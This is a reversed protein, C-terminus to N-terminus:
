EFRDEAEADPELAPDGEGSHMYERYAKNRLVMVNNGYIDTALFSEMKEVYGDNEDSEIYMDNYGDIVNPNEQMAPTNSTGWSEVIQWADEGDFQNQEPLEDLSTRGYPPALLREEVPRRDSSHPDPVHEYCYLTTPIAKLREFPIPKGCTVCNGYDGSEIHSLALHIDDLQQESNENLANDKAREFVESGLDAPHNDYASLEGTQDGLSQILGYSGNQDLRRELDNKEQLLQQKLENLQQASLPSM